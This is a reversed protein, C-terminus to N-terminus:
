CVRQKKRYINIVHRSFGFVSIRCSLATPLGHTRQSHYLCESSGPLSQDGCAPLTLSLASPLAAPVPCTSAVVEAPPALPFLEALSSPPMSLCVHPPPPCRYNLLGWETGLMHQFSEAM